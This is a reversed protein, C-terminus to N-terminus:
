QVDGITKKHEYTDIGRRARASFGSTDNGVYQIGQQKEIRKREVNDQPGGIARGQRAEEHMKGASLAYSRFPDVVGIVMDPLDAALDRAIIQQCFPCGGLDRPASGCVHEQVETSNSCGCSYSYRM